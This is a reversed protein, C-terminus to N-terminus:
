FRFDFLRFEYKLCQPTYALVYEQGAYSKLLFIRDLRTKSFSIIFENQHILLFESIKLGGGLKQKQTVLM